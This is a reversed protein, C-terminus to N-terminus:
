PPRAAGPRVSCAPSRRFSVVFDLDRLVEVGGRVVRLSHVSVANRWTNFRSVGPRVGDLDLQGDLYRQLTPAYMAVLVGQDMSALPEALLVYRLMVLGYTAAM